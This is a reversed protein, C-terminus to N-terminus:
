AEGNQKAKQKVERCKKREKNEIREVYVKSGEEKEWTGTKM